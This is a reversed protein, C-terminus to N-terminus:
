FGGTAKQLAAWALQADFQASLRAADARAYLLTSELLERADGLGSEFAVGAQVSLQKGIATEKTFRDVKIRAEQLDGLAQNLELRILSVAGGRVAIAEHLDAETQRVRALKQPM